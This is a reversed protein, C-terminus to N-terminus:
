GYRIRPDLYGYLFDLLIAGGVTCISSVVFIGMLLPYDLMLLSDYMLRGVGPWAFVTEILVSGAILRSFNLGIVTIIPLCANKFAHRYVVTNDDLGKAKATTVYDSSLAELMNARTLRAVTSLEVLSWALAPLILHRLLDIMRDFFGGVLTFSYMGSTPLLHLNVAFVVILLQGVLFSPASFGFTAFVMIVSDFYSHVRKASFVGLLIGVIVYFITGVGFLLLTAPVRELIMNLVPTNYRISYGLDAQLIKSIYIALQEYIPKDLGYSARVRAVYDPDALEGALLWIPDGPQLHIILFTLIIIGFIAPIGFLVKKLVYRKVSTSHRYM